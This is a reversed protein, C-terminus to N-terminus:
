NCQSDVVRGPNLINHPDLMVKLRKMLAIEAETRSVSLWAKKELGIGHEASVSGGLAQLPEYVIRDCACKMEVHDGGERPSVFFHLNGDGMHGLTYFHSNRWLASIKGRLEAIYGEMARIPLSVDYLFCPKESIVGDFVERIQWMRQKQQLHQAIVADEAVATDLMSALWNEMQERDQQQDSGCAELLVYWRHNRAMPARHRGPLTQARFYEGDLLEFRTLTGALSAQASNLLSIANAFSHCGILATESTIPAPHLRLVAKTVIGLVGESGIFLQKLDFGANNKQMHNLSSVLTGDPLVAELGLVQQRMMGYRIVEMGGANTSINGGITCSSRAGIDLAFLMGQERAYVQVQELTCGAEVTLTKGDADFDLIRNMRELSLAIDGASTQHAGTLGTLGGHVVVPQRHRHCLAMIRCVQDATEPLVIAAAGPRSSDWYGNTRTELAAGSLTNREGAIAQLSTLVTNPMAKLSITTPPM